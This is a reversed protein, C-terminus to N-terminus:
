LITPEFRRRFSASPSTSASSGIYEKYYDQDYYKRENQAYCFTIYFIIVFCSLKFRM